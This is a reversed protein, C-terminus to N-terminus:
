FQKETGNGTWRPWHLDPAYRNPEGADIFGRFAAVMQAHIRERDAPASAGWSFGTFAPTELEFNGLAFAVDLGHYAGLLSHWPEPTRDWVFHYRYVPVSSGALLQTAEDVRSLLKRNLYWGLVKFKALAFLSPFFDRQTLEGQGHIRQWLAGYSLGSVPRLIILPAEDDVTGLIAPVPNVLPGDRGSTLVVGDVRERVAPIGRAATTIEVATKGYLYARLTAADTGALYEDLQTDAAIRRDAILLRALLRRGAELQDEEKGPQPLGSLCITKHFKGTALPSLMLSWISSCGASQGMVIVKGPDGGFHEANRQVWELAKVQDLLAFAGSDDLRDGSKLAPLNALGLFGLRYNIGVFVVDLEQALRRGDYLPLSAAGVLSSGGHIFVVVPRARGETAPAWVNLFLCDESGYPQDFTEPQNSTFFNGVQPCASGFERADRVGQWGSADQPAKWRLPGVPPQAYPIAAFRNVGDLALGRVAGQDLRVIPDAAPAALPALLACGLLLFRLTM